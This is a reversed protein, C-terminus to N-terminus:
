EIEKILTENFKINKETIDYFSYIFDDEDSICKINWTYTNNENIGSIEFSNFENGFETKATNLIDGLFEQLNQYKKLEKLTEIELIDEYVIEGNSNLIAKILTSEKKQIKCDDDILLADIGIAKM